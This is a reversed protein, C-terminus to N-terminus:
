YIDKDTTPIIPKSTTTATYTAYVGDGDVDIVGTAIFDNQGSENKTLKVSYSGRVGGDPQWNLTQFGGSDTVMWDQINKGDSSRPPYENCSVFTDFSAEYQILSVRIGALNMPVEGRKSKKQLLTFSTDDQVSPETDKCAVFGFCGIALGFFVFVNKM